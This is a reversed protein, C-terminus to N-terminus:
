IIRFTRVTHLLNLLNSLIQPNITLHLPKGRFEIDEEKTLDSKIFGGVVVDLCVTWISLVILVNIDDNQVLSNSHATGSVIQVEILKRNIELHLKDLLKLKFIPNRILSTLLLSKNYRSM